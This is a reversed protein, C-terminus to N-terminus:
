GRGKRKQADKAVRGFKRGLRRRQADNARIEASEAERRLAVFSELRETPLAGAAVAAAVACGPEGEHRCDRFRCGGALDGVDTFAENVADPDVWLGVARIGPTDILVGGGPLVHLQRSTTTHRGKSDSARVAGTTAVDVGVLANVLTSKGAGSEGLLVVTRDRAADTLESLGRGDRSSVTIVNMGPNARMLPAVDVADVLDAKTLVLLPTAGADLALTAARSIRNANLPRDLGCVLLVIDVNAALAHEQDALAAKRRLLSRRAMVFSVTENAVGVWDGVAVAGVNAVLSANRLGAGTVIGVAVSDHRLVRAPEDDASALAAFENAWRPDWGYAALSAFPDTPADSL